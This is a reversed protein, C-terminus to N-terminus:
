NNDSDLSVNWKGDKYTASGIHVNGKRGYANSVYTLNIDMCFLPEPDRSYDIEDPRLYHGVKIGNTDYRYIYVRGKLSNSLHAERFLLSVSKDLMAINENSKYVIYKDSKTEKVKWDYSLNWGTKKNIVDFLDPLKEEVEQWCQEEVSKIRKLFDTYNNGM